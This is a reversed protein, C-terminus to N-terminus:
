LYASLGKKTSLDEFAAFDSINPTNILEKSSNLLCTKLSKMESTSTERVAEFVAMAASFSAHIVVCSDGWWAEKEQGILSLLWM